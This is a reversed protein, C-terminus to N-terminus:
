NSLVLDVLLDAAGEDDGSDKLAEILVILAANRVATGELSEGIIEELAELQIEGELEDRIMNIGMLAVSDGGELAIVVESLIEIEDIFQVEEPVDHDREFHFEGMMQQPNGGMGGHPGGEVGMMRITHERMNGGGEHPGGEVGMMRIKHERMNGGGEHSGGEVGFIMNHMPNADTNKERAIMQMVHSVMDEPLGDIEEGNVIMKVHVNEGDIDFAEMESAEDDGFAMVSISIEGDINKIANDDLITSLDIVQEDGNILVIFEGGDVDVDIESVQSDTTSAITNDAQKTKTCGALIISSTIVFTFIIQKM